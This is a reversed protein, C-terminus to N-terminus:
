SKRPICSLMDIINDPNEAGLFNYRRLEESYCYIYDTQCGLPFFTVPRDNVVAVNCKSPKL